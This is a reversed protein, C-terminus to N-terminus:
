CWCCLKYPFCAANIAGCTGVGTMAVGGNLGAMGKFVAKEVEPSMLEIGEARFAECIGQFTGPACSLYKQAAIAAFRGANEIIRERKEKSLEIKEM